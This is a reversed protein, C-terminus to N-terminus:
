LNDLSAGAPSAVSHRREHPTDMTNIECSFNLPLSASM